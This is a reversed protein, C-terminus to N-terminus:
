IFLSIKSDKAENLFFAAGVVDETEEILSDKDIGMVGCSTSCAYFKVGLQKALEFLEDISPSKTKKMLAKMMVPGLGAMNINTLPLKEKRSPLMFEMMRQIINKRGYNRRKKLFSLGWFTFFVKVDMGMSAGTTALTLMAVAKDMTGGFFALTMKEKM